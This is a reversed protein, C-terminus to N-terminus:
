GSSGRQALIALCVPVRYSRYVSGGVLFFLGKKHCSWTQLQKLHKYIRTRLTVLSNVAQLYKESAVFFGTRRAPLSISRVKDRPILLTAKQKFMDNGLRDWIVHWTRPLLSQPRIQPLYRWKVVLACPFYRCYQPISMMRHNQSPPICLLHNSTWIGFRELGIFEHVTVKSNRMLQHEEAGIHYVVM